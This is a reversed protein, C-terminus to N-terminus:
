GAHPHAGATELAEFRHRAGGSEEVLRFYASLAHSLHVGEAAYSQVIEGDRLTACRGDELMAFSVVSGNITQMEFLCQRIPSQESGMGSDFSSHRDNEM